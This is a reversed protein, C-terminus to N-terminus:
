RKGEIEVELLYPKGSAFAARLAATLEDPKTVRAGAIGMGRAMDVFGLNPGTLDMQPYDRNSMADFRQRYTDLNHKLVRYERNALIVFVIALDHHAASWLAQASYMASGDGSIALVPRDPCAVKAGIAGALAQGIGGGRGSLYDGPREFPVTRALDVNATISEDVVVVDAPLADRIAAMTVAMSMPSRARSKEARAAQAADDADRAAKLAAGRRAAAATFEAPAAALAARIAAISARPHGALGVTPAFNYALREFSEELHVVAAGDAFPAGPAYWVEEFFPGGILMVLDHADFAKRMAAADFPVAGRANRHFSPFSLQHRLGEVWVPAGLTESLAVLEAVAGARAVDDGAVIVPSRAALLARAAAAVGAPDPRTARYLAGPPVALVDTEQEMVDIPLAVFVPGCPPDNAIKFARRLIPAMEDAREVQVSWKVVPAAMAALDHGLLPDRLRLRTDQQGATVVMPSNAKLAGYLMGLANGL